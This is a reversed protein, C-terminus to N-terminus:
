HACAHALARLRARARLRLRSPALVGERALMRKRCLTNECSYARTRDRGEVVFLVELTCGPLTRLTRDLRRTLPEINEEENYAAIVVALKESRM